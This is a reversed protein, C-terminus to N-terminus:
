VRERCSARGIEFLRDGEETATTVWVQEGWVVPSSWARGHIPTKWRINGQESWEVPLGVSMSTGDGRPGRFQPWPETAAQVLWSSGVWAAFLIRGLTM